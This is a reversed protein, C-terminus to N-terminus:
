NLNIMGGKINATGGGDFTGSASGKVSVTSGSVTASSGAKMSADSGGSLSLSSGAKVTASSSASATFSGKSDLSANGGSNLSLTGGAQITIKGTAKILLDGDVTLTYDEAVSHSFSASNSHEEEGEVGVSRGGSVSLGADGEIATKQNGSVTVTRDLSVTTKDNGSVTLSRDKKVTITQNNGIDHSDDHLVERTFNRQAHMYIEESDKKDEFRLENSTQTSDQKSSRTKIGSQTKNTPLSYSPMNYGNFVSGVVLPRDPDGDLFAVLVEMGIRPVFQTGRNRGAAIQAVRVYCSSTEDSAGKRDWHFHIKIRGYSDCYIEEDSPGTVVATELGHVVPRPTAREPRFPVSSPLCEFSNSYSPLAGGHGLHSRDEAEHRVEVLVYSRRAEADIPHRTLEFVTGPAFGRYAGAGSVREYAAEETEIRVKSLSQGADVDTYTGLYDYREWKQFSAYPLATPSSAQLVADPTEFNYSGLTWVGSRFSYTPTWRQIIEAQGQQTAAHECSADACQGYGATGDSIVLTHRNEEHRFYYYLGEEELLRSFFAFDTERYQVRYPRAPHDGSVSKIEFDAIGADSLLTEVIDLVGVDQFIRFDSTRTLLWLSPVLELRYARSGDAFKAGSEFRQVIGHMCRPERGERAIALTVPQGLISSPAVAVDSSVADVTFRFLRSMAESGSLAVPILVDPGLPTTLSLLRGTQVALTESM